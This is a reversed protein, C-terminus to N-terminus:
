TPNRRQRNRGVTALLGLGALLLVASQPLPTVVLPPEPASPLNGPPGSAGDAGFDLLQGPPMCTVGCGGDRLFRAKPNPGGNRRGGPREGRKDPRAARHGAVGDQGFARTMGRPWDEDPVHEAGVPLAALCLLLALTWVGVIQMSVRMGVPHANKTLIPNHRARSWPISQGERARAM